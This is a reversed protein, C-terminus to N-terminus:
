PLGNSLRSKWANAGSSNLFFCASTLSGRECNAMPAYRATDSLVNRAAFHTKVFDSDFFAISIHVQAAYDFLLKGQVLISKAYIQIVIWLSM